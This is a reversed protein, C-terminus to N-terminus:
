LMLSRRCTMNFSTGSKELDVVEYRHTLINRLGVM